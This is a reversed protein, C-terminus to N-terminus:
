DRTVRVVEEASTVGEAVLRQGDERM